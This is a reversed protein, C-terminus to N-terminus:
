ICTDTHRHSIAVLWQIIGSLSAYPQIYSNNKTITITVDSIATSQNSASHQYTRQLCTTQLISNLNNVSTLSRTQYVVHSQINVVIILWVLWWYIYSDFWVNISGPILLYIFWVLVADWISLAWWSINDRQLACYEHLVSLLRQMGNLVISWHYFFPFSHACTASDILPRSIVDWSTCHWGQQRCEFKHPTREIYM